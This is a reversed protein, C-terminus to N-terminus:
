RLIGTNVVIVPPTNSCCGCNTGGSNDETKHSHGKGHNDNDGDHDNGHGRGNGNGNGNGHGNGLGDCCGNGGGGGNGNGNTNTLAATVIFFRYDSDKTYAIVYWDNSGSISPNILNTAATLTLLSYQNTPGVIESTYLQIETNRVLEEIPLNTNSFKLQFKIKVQETQAFAASTLLLTSLVLTKIKM